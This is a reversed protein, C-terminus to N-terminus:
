TNQQWYHWLLGERAEIGLPFGIFLTFFLLYFWERGELYMSELIPTIALVGDGVWWGFIGISGIIMMYCIAIWDKRRM